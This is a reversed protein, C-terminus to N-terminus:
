RIWCTENPIIDRHIMLKSCSQSDEVNYVAILGRSDPMAIPAKVIMKSKLGCSNQPWGVRGIALDAQYGGSDAGAILEVM